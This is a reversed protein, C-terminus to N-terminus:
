LFSASKISVYIDRRGSRPIRKRNRISLNDCPRIRRTRMHRRLLRHLSEILQLRSSLPQILRSSTTFAAIPNQFPDRFSRRRPNHTSHFLSLICSRTGTLQSHSYELVPIQTSTHIYQSDTYYQGSFTHITGYERTNSWAGRFVVNSVFM